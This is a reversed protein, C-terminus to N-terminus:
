RPSSHCHIPTSEPTTALACQLVCECFCACVRVDGRKSNSWQSTPHRCPGISAESSCAAMSFLASSLRLFCLPRLFCVPFDLLVLQARLSLSFSLSTSQVASQASIHLMIPTVPPCFCGPHSAYCGIMTSLLSGRRSIRLRGHQRGVVM